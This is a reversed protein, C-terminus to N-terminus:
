KDARVGTDLWHDLLIIVDAIDVRCDGNIDGTIITECLPDGFYSKSAQATGGYAGMNIVGGNPFPEVMVPSNPDGADICPSTVDDQIWSGSAQDWRGAQSKLHYDGEVFFDDKPDDPTGNADWYGPDVFCPDADINGKDWIIFGNPDYIGAEGGAVNTHQIAIVGKDAWIENDSNSIICNVVEVSGYGATRTGELLFAGREGRNGVVTCNTFRLENCSVSQVVGGGDPAVNAWFLCNEFSPQDIATSEIAGGKRAASNSVFRCRVVKLPSATSLSIAGGNGEVHNDRLVCDVLTTPSTHIAMGGGLRSTANNTLTCSTLRLKNGHCAIGGGEFDSANREFHCNLLETSGDMAFLGGGSGRSGNAVIRCDILSLDDMRDAYIAGGGEEAYNGRFVCRCVTVKLTPTQTWFKLNLGGGVHESQTRYSPGGANKEYFAHGATIFFGELTATLDGVVVGDEDGSIVNYSNDLRSPADGADLPSALEVDNGALDGSLVTEYTEPEWANPDSTGVGAYGGRLTLQHALCFTADRDRTGDPRGASQDPRYLGQAIRIEVPERGVAVDALADQLFRYATAWSTGDGPAPADDDVYIVKAPAPPAAACLVLVALLCATSVIRRM